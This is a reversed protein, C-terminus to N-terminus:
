PKEPKKGLVARAVKEIDKWTVEQGESLEVHDLLGKALKEYEEDTLKRVDKSKIPLDTKESM